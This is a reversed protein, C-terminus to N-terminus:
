RRRWAATGTANRWLDCTHDLISGPGGAELCPPRDAGGARPQHERRERSPRGMVHIPKIVVTQGKKVFREMGGLAAVGRDFMEGPEGGRVAALGPLGERAGLVRRVSGPLLLAAGGLGLAATKKLFERRDM